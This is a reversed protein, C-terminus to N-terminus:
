RSCPFSSSKHYSAEPFAAVFAPPAPLSRPAMLLHAPDGSHTESLIFRTCLLTNPSLPPSLSVHYRPARHSSPEQAPPTCPLKSLLMQFRHMCNLWGPFTGEVAPLGSSRPPCARTHSTARGRQARLCLRSPPASLCCSPLSHAPPWSQAAGPQQLLKGSAQSPLHAFAAEPHNKTGKLKHPTHSTADRQCSSAAAM